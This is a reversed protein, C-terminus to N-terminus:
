NGALYMFIQINRPIGRGEDEPFNSSRVKIRYEGSMYGEETYADQMEKPYNKKLSDILFCMFPGTLQFREHMNRVIVYRPILVRPRNMVRYVHDINDLIPLDM